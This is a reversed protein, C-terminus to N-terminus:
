RIKIFMQYIHWLIYFVCGAIFYNRQWNCYKNCKKSKEKMIKSLVKQSHQQNFNPYWFDLNLIRSNAHLAIIYNERNKCGFLFSLGLCVISIGVPIQFISLAINKTQTIIFGIVTIDAVLFFYIYKDQANDITRYIELSEDKNM